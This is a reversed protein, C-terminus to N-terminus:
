AWAVSACAERARRRLAWESHARECIVDDASGFVAGEAEVVSPPVDCLMAAPVCPAVIQPVRRRVAGALGLFDAISMELTRREAAAGKSTSDLDQELTVPHLSDDVIDGFKSAIDNCPPGCRDEILSEIHADAQACRDRLADLRKQVLEDYSLITSALSNSFSTTLALDFGESERM